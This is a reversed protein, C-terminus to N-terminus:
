IFYSQSNSAHFSSFGQILHPSVKVVCVVILKDPFKLNVRYKGGLLQTVLDLVSDHSLSNSNTRKFYLAWTDKHVSPKESPNDDSNTVEDESKRTNDDSTTDITSDAGVPEAKDLCVDEGIASLPFESKFINELVNKLDNLNANCICDIPVIKSLFRATYAKNELIRTFIGQVYKSPVDEKYKFVVFNLGKSICSGPVFRSFDENVQSIEQELLRELDMDKPEVPNTKSEERHVGELGSHQILCLYLHPKPLYIYFNLAIMPTICVERLISLIEQMADKYKGVM